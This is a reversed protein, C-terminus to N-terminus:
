AQVAMQIAKVKNKLVFVDEHSEEYYVYKGESLASPPDLKAFEYSVPTIVALPNILCMHIQKASGGAKWGSTFEYVTKMLESPVEVIEVEDLSTIARSLQNQKGVDLTRYIGQANKILTNTAPTVYLVLGMKPVRGEAMNELMKDYVSLINEATLATTDASEGATTWDSYIKSITYADMEPFKQEENFVRTINAITAM